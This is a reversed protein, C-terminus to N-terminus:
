FSSRRAIRDRLKSTSPLFQIRYTNVIDSSYIRQGFSNGCVSSRILGGKLCGCSDASCPIGMQFCMCNNDICLQCNPIREKLQLSLEGKSMKQVEDSNMGLAILEGKMKAVSLKDVKTPKCSCGTDM